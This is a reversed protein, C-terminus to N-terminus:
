VWRKPSHLRCNMCAWQPKLPQSSRQLSDGHFQDVHAGVNNTTNGSLSLSLSTLNLDNSHKDWAAKFQLGKCRRIGPFFLIYAAILLHIIIASYVRLYFFRIIRVAPALDTDWSCKIQNTGSSSKISSGQVAFCTWGGIQSWSLSNYFWFCFSRTWRIFIECAQLWRKTGSFFHFDCNNM